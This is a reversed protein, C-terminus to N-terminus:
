LRPAPETSQFDVPATDAFAQQEINADRIAFMRELDRLVDADTDPGAAAVSAAVAPTTAPAPVPAAAPATAAAPRAVATAASAAVAPQVPNEAAATADRWLAHNPMEPYPCSDGVDFEWSVGYLWTKAQPEFQIIATMLQKEFAHAYTLLRLDWHRMVLRVYMGPGRSRSNVVLMHSEVWNGPIGHRRLGVRLLMQVLQRRTGNDSNDEITHRSNQSDQSGAPQSSGSKKAASEAKRGLLMNILQKM